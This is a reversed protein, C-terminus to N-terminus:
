LVLAACHMNGTIGSPRLFTSPQDSRLLLHCAVKSLKVAKKVRELTQAEGKIKLTQHTEDEKM